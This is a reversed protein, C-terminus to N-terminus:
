AAKLIELATGYGDWNDVGAVELAYLMAEAELLEDYRAQSITITAEDSNDSPVAEKQIILAPKLEETAQEKQIELKATEEHRILEREQELKVKEAEKHDSIRLRILACFDDNSKNIITQLDFFLFEFGKAHEEYSALNTRIMDAQANVEIKVRALEASAADQLSAITKKGKMSGIFDGYVPTISVVKLSQNIKYIHDALETEVTRKIEMRRNEKQAKVLKDLELRTRRTEESIEDITRFLEDISTTQSLAHDKAAALRGEVDKCWKVAKEANAFDQDTVLDRNISDIVALAHAKYATLNSSTVMGTLEIHLAPLADMDRGIVEAKVEEPQYEALDKELQKWGALIQSRLDLDPEYWVHRVDILNNESDWESASFLTKTAESVHMQHEMQVRYMLPLDRGTADDTMVSRLTNNLTKHEWNIDGLMTLGDFSASLKDKSGTVPYIEECIIQEALPRCNAEYQHGLDFRHQTSSDIESAMGTALERILESRKKYSSCDFMAPADSANFHTSRHTHWEPTGQILNLIKM